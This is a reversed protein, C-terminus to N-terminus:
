YDFILEVVEGDDVSVYGGDSSHEDWYLWRWVRAELSVSCGSRSEVLGPSSYPAYFLFRRGTGLADSGTPKKVFRADIPPTEKMAVRAEDCRELYSRSRWFGLAAVVVILVLVVLLWRRTGPGSKVPARTPGACAQLGQLSLMALAAAVILPLIGDVRRGAAGFLFILAMFAVVIALMMGLMSPLWLWTRRTRPMAPFRLGLSQM